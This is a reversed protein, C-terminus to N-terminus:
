YEVRRPVKWSERIVRRQAAELWHLFILSMMAVYNCTVLLPALRRQRRPHKHAPAHTPTRWCINMVSTYFLPPDHSNMGQALRPSVSARPEGTFVPASGFSPTSTTSSPSRERGGPEGPSRLTKRAVSCWRLLISSSPPPHLPSSPCLYYSECLLVPRILICYLNTGFRKGFQTRTKPSIIRKGQM